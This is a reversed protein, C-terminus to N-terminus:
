RTGGSLRLVLGEHPRLTTTQNAIPAEPQTDMYSSCVLKAHSVPLTAAQQTDSFNALILLEEDECSRLYAFVETTGGDISRYSGSLLAPSSKRYWILYRYLALFSRPDNKEATVNRENSSAAIPLWPSGATFGANTSGDWQM